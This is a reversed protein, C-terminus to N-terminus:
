AEEHEVEKVIKWRSDAKEVIFTGGYGSLRGRFVCGKVEAKGADIPKLGHVTILIGPENTDRDFVVQSDSNDSDVVKAKSGKRIRM